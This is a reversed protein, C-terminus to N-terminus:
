KSDPGKRKQRALIRNDIIMAMVMLLLGFIFSGKSASDFFIPVIIIALAILILIVGVKSIKM